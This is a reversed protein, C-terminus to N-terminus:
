SRAPSPYLADQRLGLRELERSGLQRKGAAVTAPTGYLVWRRHENSRSAPEGLLLDWAGEAVGQLTLIEYWVGDIRTVRAVRVPGRRKGPATRRPPKRRYPTTPERLIGTAPDVYFTRGDRQLLDWPSMAPARRVERGAVIVHLNVYCLIHQVLHMQVTSGTSLRERIESHVKSWPRGCRSRLFRRLPGVLDDFSKRDGRRPLMAAHHPLVDWAEPDHIRAAEVRAHVVEENPWRSGHRPREVLVKAM